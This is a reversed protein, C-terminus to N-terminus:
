KDFFDKDQIPEQVWGGLGGIWLMRCLCKLIATTVWFPVLACAACCVNACMTKRKCGKGRDSELKVLQNLKTVVEVQAALSAPMHLYMYFYMYVLTHM